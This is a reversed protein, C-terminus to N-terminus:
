AVHDLFCEPSVRGCRGRGGVEKFVVGSQAVVVDLCTVPDEHVKVPKLVARSLPLPRVVEEWVAEVERM